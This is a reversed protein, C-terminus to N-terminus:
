LIKRNTYLIKRNTYLAAHVPLDACCGALLGAGGTREAVPSSSGLLHDVRNSYAFHELTRLRFNM